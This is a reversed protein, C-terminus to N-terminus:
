SDRLRGSNDGDQSILESLFDGLGDDAAAVAASWASVSAHSASGGGGGGGSGSGGVSGDGGRPFLARAGTREV